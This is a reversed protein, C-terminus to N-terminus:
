LDLLDRPLLEVQARRLLERLHQELVQAQRDALACFSAVGGVGVRQLRQALLVRDDTQDELVALERLELRGINIRQRLQDIRQRAAHM